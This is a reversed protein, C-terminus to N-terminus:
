PYARWVTSARPWGSRLAQIDQSFSRVRTYWAVSGKEACGYSAWSTIGFQVLAGDSPRVWYLPGGSDGDCTDQGGEVPFNPSVACVSVEDILLGRFQFPESSECESFPLVKLEVKQLRNSLPGGFETHGFGSAIAMMQGSPEDSPSSAMQVNQTEVDMPRSTHIMAIDNRYTPVSGIRTSNYTAHVYIRSAYVAEGEYLTQKGAYLSIGTAITDFDPHYVCHAATMVWRKAIVTGGCLIRRGTAAHFIHLAVHRRAIMLEADTGGVVNVRPRIASASASIVWSLILLAAISNLSSPQCSLLPLAM